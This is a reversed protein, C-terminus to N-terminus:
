NPWCSCERLLPFQSMHQLVFIGEIIYQDDGSYTEVRLYSRVRIAREELSSLFKELFDLPNEFFFMRSRIRAPPDDYLDLDLASLVAEELIARASASLRFGNEVGFDRLTQRAQRLIFGSPAM